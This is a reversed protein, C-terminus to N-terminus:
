EGGLGQQVQATFDAQAEQVKQRYAAIAEQLEALRQAQEPTLIQQLSSTLEQESKETLAKIQDRYRRWAAADGRGPPRQVKRTAETLATAKERQLRLFEKKQENTLELLGILKLASDGKLTVLQTAAEEGVAQVLEEYAAKVADRLREQAARVLEFQQRQEDTLVAAVQGAYKENLAAILEQREKERKRALEALKDQQGAGLAFLYRTLEIPDLEARRRPNVLVAALSRLRVARRARLKQEARPGKGRAHRRPQVDAGPAAVMLAIGLVVVCRCLRYTTM